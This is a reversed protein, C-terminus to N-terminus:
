RVRCKQGDETYCGNAVDGQEYAPVKLLRGFHLNRDFILAQVQYFLLEFSCSVQQNGFFFYQM